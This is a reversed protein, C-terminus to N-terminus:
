NSENKDTTDCSEEKEMPLFGCGDDGGVNGYLSDVDIPEQASEDSTASEEKSSNSNEYYEIIAEDGNIIQVENGKKVLLMPITHYGMFTIFNQSQPKSIAIKKFEIEHEKLYKKVKKCHPCTPSQILYTGDAQLQPAQNPIKLFSMAMVLAVVAPVILAFYRGMTFLAIAILFGYVGMCFKCMQPSGYFQFSLMITEFLISVFLLTYFLKKDMKNKYTLFGLVLLMLATMVGIYNLYISDFRLLGDALKCGTSECLSSHNLKLYTESANYIFFLLPLIVFGFFRM